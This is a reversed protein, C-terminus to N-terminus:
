ENVKGYGVYLKDLTNGLVLCKNCIARPTCRKEQKLMKHFDMEKRTRQDGVLKKIYMFYEANKWKNCAYCYNKNRKNKRPMNKLLSLKLKKM